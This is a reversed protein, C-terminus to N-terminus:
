SDAQRNFVYVGFSVLPIVALIALGVWNRQRVCQVAMGALVSAILTLCAVLPLVPPHGGLSMLVLGLGALVAIAIRLWFFDGQTLPANRRPGTETV